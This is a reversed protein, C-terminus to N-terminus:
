CYSPPPTDLLLYAKQLHREFVLNAGVVTNLAKNRGALLNHRPFYSDRQVYPSSKKYYASRNLSIDQNKNDVLLYTSNTSQEFYNIQVAQSVAEQPVVIHCFLIIIGLAILSRVLVSSLAKKYISAQIPFYKVRM